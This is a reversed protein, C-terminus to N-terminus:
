RTMRNKNLYDQVQAESQDVSSYRGRIKDELNTNYSAIQNNLNTNYAEKQFKLQDKAIGIQQSTGYLSGLAGIGQLLSGIGEANNGLWKFASGFMSTGNGTNVNNLGNSVNAAVSTPSQIIGNNSLLQQPQAQQAAQANKMLLLQPDFSEDPSSTYPFGM